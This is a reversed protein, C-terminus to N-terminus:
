TPSHSLCKVTRLNSECEAVSMDSWTSVTSLTPDHGKRRPSHLCTRYRKGAAIQRGMHLFSLPFSSAWLCNGPFPARNPMHRQLRMTRMPVYQGYMYTRPWCGTAPARCSPYCYSAGHWIERHIKTSRQGTVRFDWHRCIRTVSSGSWKLWKGTRSRCRERYAKNEEGKQGM